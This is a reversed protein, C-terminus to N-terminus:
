KVHMVAMLNTIEEDSAHGKKPRMSFNHPTSVHVYQLVFLM